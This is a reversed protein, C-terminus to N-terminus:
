KENPNLQNNIPPHPILLLKELAEINKLIEDLNNM